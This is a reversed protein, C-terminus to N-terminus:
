VRGFCAVSGLQCSVVPHQGCTGSVSRERTSCTHTRRVTRHLNSSLLRPSVRLLVSPTPPRRSPCTQYAKLRATELDTTAVAVTGSAGKSKQRLLQTITITITVVMSQLEAAGATKCSEPFSFLSMSASGIIAFSISYESEFSTKRMLLSRVGSSSCTLNRFVASNRDFRKSMLCTTTLHTAPGNAATYGLYLKFERFLTGCGWGDYWWWVMELRGLMIKKAKARCGVTLICFCPLDHHTLGAQQECDRWREGPGREKEAKSSVQRVYRRAYAYM